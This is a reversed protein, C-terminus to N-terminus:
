VELFVELFSKKEKKRWIGGALTQSTRAAEDRKANIVRHTAIM